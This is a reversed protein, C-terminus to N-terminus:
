PIVGPERIGPLHDVRLGQFGLLLPADQEIPEPVLPREEDGIVFAHNSAAGRPLVLNPFGQPRQALLAAEAGRDM